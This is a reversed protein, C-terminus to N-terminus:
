NEAKKCTTRRSKSASMLCVTVSVAFSGSPTGQDHQLSPKMINTDNTVQQHVKHVIKTKLLYM